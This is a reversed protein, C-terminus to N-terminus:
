ATKLLEMAQAAHQDIDDLPAYEFQVIMRVRVELDVFRGVLNDIELGHGSTDRAEQRDKNREKIWKQAEMKGYKGYGFIRIPSHFYETRVSLPLALYQDLFQGNEDKQVRNYAAYEYLIEAQM